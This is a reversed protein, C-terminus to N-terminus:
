PLVASKQLEQSRKICARYLEEVQPVAVEPTYKTLLRNYGNIGMQETEKHDSLLM